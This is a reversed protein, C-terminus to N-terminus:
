ELFNWPIRIVGDKSIDYYKSIILDCGQLNLAEAMSAIKNCASITEKTTLIPDKFFSQLDLSSKTHSM